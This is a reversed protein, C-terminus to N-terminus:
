VSGMMSSSASENAELRPLTGPEDRALRLTEIRDLQRELKTTRVGSLERFHKAADDIKKGMTDMVDVYKDWEKKFEALIAAIQKAATEVRFADTAQRIVALLAYLTLPSCLVVKNRVADDLLAPDQSHMFGYVQENPIFVLVCDLTGGAPNVYAKTAVEKIRARVDRVFAQALGARAPEEATELMKLYNALPFKVDMNVTREGPLLFTFDPRGADGGVQKRYNVGEIFGALRLVDEAMREGWQGRAQSSALAERLKSTTEQLRVTALTAQDLRSVLAGQTEAQQKSLRQVVSNLETLNKGMHELNTDILKKKTELSQDVSLSQQAVQRDLRDKALKLFDETNASLAQRSLDGFSAKLQDILISLEEARKSEAEQHAAQALKAANKHKWVALAAGAVAGVLLGVLFLLLEMM